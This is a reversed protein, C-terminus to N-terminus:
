NADNPNVDHLYKSRNFTFLNLINNNNPTKANAGYALKLNPIKKWNRRQQQSEHISLIAVFIHRCQQNIAASNNVFSIYKSLRRKKYRCFHTSKSKSLYKERAREDQKRRVKQHHMFTQNCPFRPEISQDRRQQQLCLLSQDGFM